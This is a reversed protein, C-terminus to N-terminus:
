NKYNNFTINKLIFINIKTINYPLLKYNDIKFKM